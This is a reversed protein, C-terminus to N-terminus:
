GLYAENMLYDLGVLPEEPVATTAWAPMIRRTAETQADMKRCSRIRKEACGRRLEAPRRNMVWAIKIRWGM